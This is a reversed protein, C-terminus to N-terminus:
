ARADRKWAHRIVYADRNDAVEERVDVDRMELVHPSALLPKEGTYYEIIVPLYAALARNNALDSGLGNAVALTGKRVCSLLGPVGYRSAAISSSRISCRRRWAGCFWM